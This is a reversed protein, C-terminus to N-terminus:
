TPDLNGDKMSRESVARSDFCHAKLVLIPNPSLIILFFYPARYDAEANGQFLESRVSFSPLCFTSWPVTLMQPNRLTRKLPGSCSKRVLCPVPLFKFDFFCVLTGGLNRSRTIFLMEQCLVAKSLVKAVQSHYFKVGISILKYNLAAPKLILNQMPLAEVPTWPEARICCAFSPDLSLRFM